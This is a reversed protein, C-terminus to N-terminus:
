PGTAVAGGTDQQLSQQTGRCRRSRDFPQNRGTVAVTGGRDLTFFQPCAATVAAVSGDDTEWGDLRRM